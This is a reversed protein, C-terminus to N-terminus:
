NCLSIQKAAALQDLQSVRQRTDGFKNKMCEFKKNIIELNKKLESFDQRDLLISKSDKTTLLLVFDKYVHSYYVNMQKRENLYICLPRSPTALNDYKKSMLQVYKDSM